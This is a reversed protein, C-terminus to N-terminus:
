ARAAGLPPARPRLHQDRGAVAHQDHVRVRRMVRRDRDPGDAGHGDRRAALEHRGKRGVAAQDHEGGVKGLVQALKRRLGVRRGLLQGPAAGVAHHQDPLHAAGARGRKNVPPLAVRAAPRRARAACSM